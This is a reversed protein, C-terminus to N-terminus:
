MIAVVIMKLHKKDEINIVLAKEQSPDVFSQLLLVPLKGAVQLLIKLGVM